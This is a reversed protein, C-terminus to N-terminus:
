RWSWRSKGAREWWSSTAVVTRRITHGQRYVASVVMMPNPESTNLPILGTMSKPQIILMPSATVNTVANVRKGGDHQQESAGAAGLPTALSLPRLVRCGTPPGVPEGAAEGESGLPM